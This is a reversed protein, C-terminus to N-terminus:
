CHTPTPGAPCCVSFAPVSRRNRRCNRCNCHEMGRQCGWATQQQWSSGGEALAVATDPPQGCHVHKCWTARSGGEECRGARSELFVGAQVSAGTGCSKVPPVTGCAPAGLFSTPLPKHPRCAVSTALRADLCTPLTCSAPLRASPCCMPAFLACISHNGCSCGVFYVM